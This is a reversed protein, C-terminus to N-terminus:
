GLNERIDKDPSPMPISEPAHLLWKPFPRVERLFSIKVCLCFASMIPKKTKTKQRLARLSDTEERRPSSPGQFPCELYRLPTPSQPWSGVSSWMLAECGPSAERTHLRLCAPKGPGVMDRPKPPHQPTLLNIYVPTHGLALM